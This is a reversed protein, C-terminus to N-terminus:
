TPELWYPGNEVVVGVDVDRDIVSISSVFSFGGLGAEVAGVL